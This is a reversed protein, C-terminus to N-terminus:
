FLATTNPRWNERDLSHSKRDKNKKRRKCHQRKRLLRGHTKRNSKFRNAGLDRRAFHADVEVSGRRDLRGSGNHDIVIAENPIKWSNCTLLAPFVKDDVSVIDSVNKHGRLM